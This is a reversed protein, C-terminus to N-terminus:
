PEISLRFTEGQQVSEVVELGAVVKGFVTYRGDLHPQPSLAVFFQSGGTDKGSHAIGVTGREYTARSWESRITFGPGGWGTGAPDGGQIVFDPVVRHFSLGDYLGDRVLALFTACTNPATQGDLAIVFDGRDTACRVRPADFPLALPAQRPDRVHAPLTARLSAESPILEPAILDGAVAAAHAAARVHADPYDFGTEIAAATEARLSDAPVYTTDAQFATLAGLVSRLIDVGPLGRADRYARLLASLNGDAPFAAILDAAHAAAHPDDGGLVRRLATQVAAAVPVTDPATDGLRRWAAVLGENAAMRLNAPLARDVTEARAVIEAPTLVHRCLGRWVAALVQPDEDRAIRAWAPDATVGTGRLAICAAVAAARVVPEPPAGEDPPLLQARASQLLRIRWVPLLSERAAAAPPLPAEAVADALADLAARAVHPSEDRSGAALLAVLRAHDDDATLSEGALQGLANMVAIDIRTRDRRSFRGKREGCDIVAALADPGGQRALARCAHVRVQADDATAFPAIDPVLDPGPVREACRLVRWLIEAEARVLGTRVTDALLLSDADAARDRLANWALIAEQEPGHLATEVLCSGDHTLRALAFLVAERLRAREDDLLAVLPDVADDDGLFGIAVAAAVRVADSPDDLLAIVERSVDTRGILGAARLAARRVHADEDTLMAVLSDTDALRRDEWRALAAFSTQRSDSPACGAALLTALIALACAAAVVVTNTRNRYM